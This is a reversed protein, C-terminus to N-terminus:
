RRVMINAPKIDRHIVGHKACHDVASLLQTSMLSGVPRRPPPPLRPPLRLVPFCCCWRELSGSAEAPAAAPQALISSRILRKTEAAREQALQAEREAKLLLVSQQM